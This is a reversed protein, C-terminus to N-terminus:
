YPREWIVWSILLTERGCPRQVHPPRTISPHDPIPTLPTLGRTRSSASLTSLTSPTYRAFSAVHLVHSSPRTYTIVTVWPYMRRPELSRVSLPMVVGFRSFRAAFTSILFTLSPNELHCAFVLAYMERDQGHMFGSLALM